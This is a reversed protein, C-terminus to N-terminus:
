PHSFQVIFVASHQLISVKSSHHQFLSKLTEQVALLEFWDIRFSILGSYEKSPSISFSFRCYKPWRICLTLESSFVWISPFISPLLLLPYCLVLYKSPMVLLCSNSCARPSPSPYPLRALQLGHARLSDSMVLSQVVVLWHIMVESRIM